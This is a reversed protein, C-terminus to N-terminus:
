GREFVALGRGASSLEAESRLGTAEDLHLRRSALIQLRGVRLRQKAVVCLIMAPIASHTYANVRSCVTRSVSSTQRTLVKPPQMPKKPAMGQQTQQGLGYLGTECPLTPRIVLNPRKERATSGPKTLTFGSDSRRM